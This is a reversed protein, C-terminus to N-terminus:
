PKYHGKLYWFFKSIGRNTSTATECAGVTKCGYREQVQFVLYEGSRVLIGSRSGDPTTTSTFFRTAPTSTAFTAGDILLNLGGPRAYDNSITAASSTAAYVLMSSSATGSTFALEGREIFVDRGTTNRWAGQNAGPGIEGDKTFTVHSGGDGHGNKFVHVAELVVGQIAGLTEEVGGSLTSPAPQSKLSSSFAAFVLLSTVLAVVAATIVNKPSM